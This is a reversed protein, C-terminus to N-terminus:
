RDDDVGGLHRSHVNFGHLVVFVVVPVVVCDALEVVLGTVVESLIM